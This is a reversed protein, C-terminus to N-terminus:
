LGRLPQDFPVFTCSWSSYPRLSSRLVHYSCPIMYKFDSLASQLREREYVRTRVSVYVCTRVCMYVRVCLHKRECTCVCICVHDRVRTCVRERVRACLYMIYVHDRECAYVCTCTGVCTCTITKWVHTCMSVCMCARARTHRYMCVHERVCACICACTTECMHARFCM